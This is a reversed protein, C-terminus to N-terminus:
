DGKLMTSIIIDLKSKKNHEFCTYDIDPFNLIGLDGRIAWCVYDRMLAADVDSVAVPLHKTKNKHSFSAYYFGGKHRYVGIYPIKGLKRDVNFANQARTIVRLNERRNDLKNRNIHDTVNGQGGAPCVLQHMMINFKGICVRPYGNGDLGWVHRALLSYDEDSVLIETGKTTYITKM